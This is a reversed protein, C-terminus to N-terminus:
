LAVVQSCLVIDFSVCPMESQMFDAQIVRHDPFLSWDTFGTNNVVRGYNAFYPALVTKSPVSKVFRLFPPFGSGVDVISDRHPSADIVQLLVKYYEMSDRRDVKVAKEGTGIWGSRYAVALVLVYLCLIGSLLIVYPNALRRQSRQM